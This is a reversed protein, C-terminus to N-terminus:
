EYEEEEEEEESEYEEHPEADVKLFIARLANYAGMGDKAAVADLLDQGLAECEERDSGGEDEPEEGKGHMMSVIVTAAKKKDPIIM